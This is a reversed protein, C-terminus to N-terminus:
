AAGRRLARGAAAGCFTGRRVETVGNVIVHTVGRAYRHPSDYTADDAV